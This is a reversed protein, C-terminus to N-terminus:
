FEAALRMTAANAANGTGGAGTGYDNDRRYELTLVVGDAFGISFGVLFRSEPLGLAQAEISQHWAIAASVDRDYM